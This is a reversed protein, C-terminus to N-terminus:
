DDLFSLAYGLIALAGFFTIVSTVLWAKRTRSPFIAIITSIACTAVVLLFIPLLTRLTM